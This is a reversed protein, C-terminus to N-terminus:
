CKDHEGACERGDSGERLGPAIRHPRRVGPGDRRRGCSNAAAFKALLPKAKEYEAPTINVGKKAEGSGAYGTLFGKREAQDLGSAKRIALFKSM